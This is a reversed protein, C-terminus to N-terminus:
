KSCCPLLIMSLKVLRRSRGKINFWLLAKHYLQSIENNLYLATGVEIFLSSTVILLLYM